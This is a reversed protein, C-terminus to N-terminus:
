CPHAKHAFRPYLKRWRVDWDEITVAIDPQTIHRVIWSWEDDTTSARIVSDVLSGSWTANWLRLCKKDTSWMTVPDMLGPFLGEAVAKVFEARSVNNIDLEINTQTDRNYVKYTQYVPRAVISVNPKPKEDYTRTEFNHVVRRWDALAGAAMSATQTNVSGINFPIRAKELVWEGPIWIELSVSKEYLRLHPVVELVAETVHVLNKFDRGDDGHTKFEDKPIGKNDRSEPYYGPVVIPVLGTYAEVGELYIDTMTIDGNYLDNEEMDQVVAEWLQTPPDLYGFSKENLRIATGSQSRVWWKFDLLPPKPFLLRMAKSFQETYQHPRHHKRLPEPVKMYAVDGNQSNILRLTNLAEVESPVRTRSPTEGKYHVFVDFKQGEGAEGFFKTAAAWIPCGSPAATHNITGEVETGGANTKRGNADTGYFSASIEYDYKYKFGLIRDVASVFDLYDGTHCHVVGQYGMVRFLTPPAPSGDKASAYYLTSATKTELSGGRLGMIENSAYTLSTFRQTPMLKPFHQRRETEDNSSPIVSITQPSYHISKSRLNPNGWSRETYDDLFELPDAQFITQDELFDVDLPTVSQIRGMKLPAVPLGFYTMAMKLQTTSQKDKFSTQLLRNYRLTNDKQWEVLEPPESMPTLLSVEHDTFCSQLIQRLTLEEHRLLSLFEKEKEVFEDSNPDILPNVRDEYPVKTLGALAKPLVSVDGAAKPPRGGGYRILAESSIDATKAPKENEIDSDLHIFRPRTPRSARTQTRTSMSPIVASATPQDNTVPRRHQLLDRKGRDEGIIKKRTATSAPAYINKRDKSREERDKLAQLRRARAKRM